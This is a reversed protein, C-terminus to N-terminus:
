YVLNPLLSIVKFTVFLMIGIILQNIGKNYLEFKKACIISNVYIQLSLDNLLEEESLNNIKYKFVVHNDLKAVAGWFPVSQPEVGLQRYINPDIRGKLAYFFSYIARSFFFISSIFLLLFILPLLYQSGELQFLKLQELCVQITKMITDSAFILGLFVGTFSIVFTIKTDITGLWFNIRELAQCLSEEKKNEGM